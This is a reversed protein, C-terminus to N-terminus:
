NSAHWDVGALFALRLQHYEQEARQDHEKAYWVEPHFRLCYRRFAVERADTGTITLEPLM